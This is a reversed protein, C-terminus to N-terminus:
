GRVSASLWLKRKNTELEGPQRDPAASSGMERNPLMSIGTFDGQTLQAAPRRSLTGSAPPHIIGRSRDSRVPLRSLLVKPEHDGPATHAQHPVRHPRRASRHLPVEQPGRHALDPAWPLVPSPVPVQNDTLQFLPPATAQRISGRRTAPRRGCPKAAGCAFTGVKEKTAGRRTFSHRAASGLRSRCCAGSPTGPRYRM